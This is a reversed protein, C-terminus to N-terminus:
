RRSGVLAVVVLLAGAGWAWMPVGLFDSTLVNGVQEKVATSYRTDPIMANYTTNLNKAANAFNLTSQVYRPSAGGQARLQAAKAWAQASLAAHQAREQSGTDAQLAKEDEMRAWISHADADMLTLQRQVEPDSTWAAAKAKWFLDLRVSAAEM